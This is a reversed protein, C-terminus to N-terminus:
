KRPAKAKRPRQVTLRVNATRAPGAGPALDTILLSARLRGHAARLRSRGLANLQITITRLKGGTVLFSGTGITKTKVRKGSKVRITLRVKGRCSGAGRWSLKVVAVRNRLVALGRSVLSTSCVPGFGLVGGSGGGASAGAGGGSGTSGGPPPGAVPQVFTFRDHATETSTGGPTTVTVHVTGASGAPSVATISSPSNVKFSAASGSQFSVASTESFHSGAITVSTGGQTSGEAPSVSNVTPRQAYTFRSSPGIQSVGEPTTVIVHVVRSQGGPGTPSIATISGDPNVTFSAAPTSDFNVASAGTLHTGGILVTTGGSMPGVKPAVGTVAPLTSPDGFSWVAGVKGADTPAGILAAAGDSRLAVSMGFSGKGAVEESGIGTLKPGEQSWTSGSRTLLWAAGIGKADHPAGILATKGDASLGVGFGFEGAGAEESGGTLKPGQHVLSAGSRAFAWAAGVGGNDARAGVLATTGDTSLTLSSAFHGEGVEEPSGTLKAGQQAWTSGSRTFLWAAGPFSSDGPGGVLATSGDGSLAVSGGLHGIGAEGEGTLKAGQQAWSSGSRTFV